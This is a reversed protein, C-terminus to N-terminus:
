WAAWPPALHLTGSAAVGREPASCSASEGPQTAIMRPLALACATAALWPQWAFQAWFAVPNAAELVRGFTEFSPAARLYVAIQEADDEVARRRVIEIDLGPLRATARSAEM